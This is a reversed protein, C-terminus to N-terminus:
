CGCARPKWGLKEPTLKGDAHVFKEILEGGARFDALARGLLAKGVAGGTIRLRCPAPEGAPAPDIEVGYAAWPCCGHEEAAFRAVALFTTEQARHHFVYGDALEETRVPLEILVARALEVHAVREEKTFVLPDCVMPLEPGPRVRRKRAMVAFIGLAVAFALAGIGLEAGPGLFRALATGVGGFALTAVLPAGCALV